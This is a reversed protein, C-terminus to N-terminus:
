ELRIARMRTIVTSGIDLVLEIEAASLRASWWLLRELALDKPSDEERLRFLEHLEIDVAKSARALLQLSARLSGNEIRSVTEAQIGLREALQAQTLGVARRQRSLKLGIRVELTKM